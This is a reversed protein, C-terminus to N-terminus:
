KFRKKKKIFYTYFDMILGIVVIWPFLVKLNRLAYQHSFDNNENLLLLNPFILILLGAELSTLGDRKLKRDCEPCYVEYPSKKFGIATKNGCYPCKRGIFLNVAEKISNNNM